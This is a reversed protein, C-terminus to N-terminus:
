HMKVRVKRKVKPKNKATKKGNNSKASLTDILDSELNTEAITDDTAKTEESDEADFSLSDEINPEIVVDFANNNPSDVHLHKKKKTKKTVTGPIAFGLFEWNCEDCLLNYTFAIKLLM